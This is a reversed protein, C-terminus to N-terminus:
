LKLDAWYQPHSNILPVIQNIEQAIIELGNQVANKYTVVSERNNSVARGLGRIANFLQTSPGSVDLVDPNLPEPWNNPQYPAAAAM